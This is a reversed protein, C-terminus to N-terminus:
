IVAEEMKVHDEPNHCQTTNHYSFLTECSRAVEMKVRSIPAVLDETQRQVNLIDCWLSSLAM